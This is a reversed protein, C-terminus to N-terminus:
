FVLGFDPLGSRCSSAPAVASDGVMCCRGYRLYLPPLTHIDFVGFGGDWGAGCLFPPFLFFFFWVLSRAIRPGLEHLLVCWAGRCKKNGQRIKKWREMGMRRRNVICLFFFDLIHGFHGVSADAITLCCRLLGGSRHSKKLFLEPPIKSKQEM